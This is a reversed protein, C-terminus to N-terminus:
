LKQHIADELAGAGLGWAHRDIAFAIALALAVVNELLDEFSGVIDAAPTVGHLDAREVGEVAADDVQVHFFVPLQLGDAFPFAVFGTHLLHNDADPFFRCRLVNLHRAADNALGRKSDCASDVRYRAVLPFCTSADPWVTSLM